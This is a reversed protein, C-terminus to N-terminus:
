LTPKSLTPEILSWLHGSEMQGIFIPYTAYLGTIEGGGALPEKRIQVPSEQGLPFLAFGDNLQLFGRGQADRYDGPAVQKLVACVDLNPRALEASVTPFNTALLIVVYLL